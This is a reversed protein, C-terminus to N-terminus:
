RKFSTLLAVQDDNLKLNSKLQDVFKEDTLLADLLPLTVPVPATQSKVPSPSVSASPTAQTVVTNSNRPATCGAAGLCLIFTLILLRRMSIM